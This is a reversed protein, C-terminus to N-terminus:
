WSMISASPCCRPWRDQPNWSQWREACSVRTRKKWSTRFSQSSPRRHSATTAAYVTAAVYVGVLQRRARSRRWTAPRPRVLLRRDRAEPMTRETVADIRGYSLQISYEAEFRTTPPELGEPRAM